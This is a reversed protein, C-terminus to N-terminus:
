RERVTSKVIASYEYKAKSSPEGIKMCTKEWMVKKIIGCGVYLAIV